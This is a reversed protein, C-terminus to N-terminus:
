DEVVEERKGPHASELTAKSAAACKKTRPASAKNCGLKCSGVNKLDGGSNGDKRYAFRGSYPRPLASGVRGTRAPLVSLDGHWRTRSRAARATRVHRMQEGAGPISQSLLQLIEDIGGRPWPLERCGVGCYPARSRGMDFKQPKKNQFGRLSRRSPPVVSAYPTGEHKTPNFLLACVFRGYTIPWKRSPFTTYVHVATTCSLDSMAMESASLEPSSGGQGDNNDSRADRM